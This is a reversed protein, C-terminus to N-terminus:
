SLFMLSYTLITLVTHHEFGKNQGKLKVLLAQAVTDKQGSIKSSILNVPAKFRISQVHISNIHNQRQDTYM